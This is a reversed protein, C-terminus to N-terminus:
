AKVAKLDSSFATLERWAEAYQEREEDEMSWLAACRSLIADAMVQAGLAYAYKTSHAEPSNRNYKVMDLAASKGQELIISVVKNM